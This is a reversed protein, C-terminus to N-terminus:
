FMKGTVERLVKEVRKADEVLGREVGSLGKFDEVGDGPFNTFEAVCRKGDDPYTGNVFLDRIYALTCPNPQAITCHGGSEQILLASNSPGLLRSVKKASEIPTVPDLTNSAILIKNKMEHRWPGAFRERAESPWYKCILGMYNWFRGALFSVEREAEESVREWERLGVKSEDLGDNCKVAPFGLSGSDDLLPCYLRDSRKFAIAAVASADGSVMTEAFVLSLVQWSVPSYMASFWLLRAVTKTLIFPKADMIAPLPEDELSEVFEWVLNSVKSKFRKQPSAKKKSAAATRNRFPLPLDVLAALACRKPGAEDCEQGFAEFGDDMHVLSSRTWDFYPGSFTVPDTVGDIIYRGVRDPFMNAYTMGLYTGYSFGWYNTVDEGLAERIKDMDRATYATSVYKLFEGSMKKCGAGTLARWAAFEKLGVGGSDGGPVNRESEKDVAAHESASQFCVVGNSGGIGRPDFGLIDYQGGALRSIFPGAWLAFGFGSGGPGGPNILITGLKPEVSALHRIVKIGITRTDSKNLYDLPVQLYGCEYNDPVTGECAEWKFPDSANVSGGIKDDRGHGFCGSWVMVQGVLVVSALIALVHFKQMRERMASVFVCRKVSVVREIITATESDRDVKEFRKSEMKSDKQTGMLSPNQAQESEM